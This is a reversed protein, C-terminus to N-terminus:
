EYLVFDRAKSPKDQDAQAQTERLACGRLSSRGSWQDLKLLDDAAQLMDSVHLCVVGAPHNGHLLVASNSEHCVALEVGLRIKEVNLFIDEVLALAAQEAQRQM